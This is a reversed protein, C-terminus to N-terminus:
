LQKSYAASAAETKKARRQSLAIECEDDLLGKQSVHYRVLVTTPPLYGLSAVALSSKNPTPFFILAANPSAAANKKARKEFEFQM